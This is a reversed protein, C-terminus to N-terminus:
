VQAAYDTSATNLQPLEIEEIFCASSSRHSGSSSASRTSVSSVKRVRRHTARGSPSDGDHQGSTCRSRTSARVQANSGGQVLAQLTQEIRTRAWEIRYSEASSLFTEAAAIASEKKHLYERKQVIPKGALFAEKYGAVEVLRLYVENCALPVDTGM